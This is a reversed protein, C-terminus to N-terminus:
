PAWGVRDLPWLTARVTGVLLDQSVQGFDRSDSSRPRNDGLVFLHGPQVVTHVRAHPDVGLAAVYAEELLEGNRWVRGDRLDVEDGPLGIVRKVYRLSPDGPFRHVVVEGHSVPRLRHSVEDVMIRDADFISPAMSSGRVESVHFGLSWLIAFVALGHTLWRGLSRGPAQPPTFRALRQRAPAPVQDLPALLAARSSLGGVGSEETRGLATPHRDSTPGEM